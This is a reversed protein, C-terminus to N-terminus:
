SQFAIEATCPLSLMAGSGVGNWSVLRGHVFLVLREGLRLRLAHSVGISQSMVGTSGPLDLFRRPRLAGLGCSTVVGM